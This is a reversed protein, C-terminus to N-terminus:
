GQLTNLFGCCLASMISKKSNTDKYKHKHIQIQTNRCKYKHPAHKSLWLVTCEHYVEKFELRQIQTNTNVYKYESVFIIAIAIAIATSNARVTAIAIFITITIAIIIVRYKAHGEKQANTNSYKTYKQIKCKYKARM